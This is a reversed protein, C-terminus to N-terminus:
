SQRAGSSKIVYYRFPAHVAKFWHPVGGPITMVDGKAIKQEVGGEIASGRIEGPSQERPEVVRGGTIVIATGELVYLIDTDALHIEAQGPGDRRSANVSFGPGTAVTSGTPGASYAQAVTAAPVHNV